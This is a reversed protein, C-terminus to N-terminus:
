KSGSNRRRPRVGFFDSAIEVANAEIDMGCADCEVEVETEIGCENALMEERLASADSSPLRRIWGRLDERTEPDLGTQPDFGDVEVIRMALLESSMNRGSGSAMRVLRKEDDATMMRWKVTRQAKPLLFEFPTGSQVHEFAEDSLKHVPLDSFDIEYAGKHGNRCELKCEVKPGWSAMRIQFLFYMRDGSLLRDPDFKGDEFQYPGPDLIEQWIARMVQGTVAERKRRAKSMQADAILDEEAVTLERFEGVLGSPMEIRM